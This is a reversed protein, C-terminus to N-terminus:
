IHITNNKNAILYKSIMLRSVTFATFFSTIIGISLTIAFGKIPGNGLYFLIIGAILTTFNSDIITLLSKKYAIDFAIINSKEIKLEERAREYIIVNTDIAMGVTLIIGAIGPLTLTSGFLSLVAILFIINLLLSINAFFGFLRYAYVMYAFVFLFGVIFSIIGYRISDEGLDAGVTREEIIKMPAPLAGARLLISLENAEAVTFSGSIQGSGTLIPERIVPSSLIENDLIIALPRGVNDKTANAFKKAGINDFKFSVISQNTQHDFGPQADILNEGSVILKKEVEVFSGDSKNKFKDFGTNEKSPSNTKLFKFNLQATKGLINKFTSPDSLGPLEVIIRNDGKQQITPEKTGLQDVRKRVIEVSQNVADKKIQKIYNESFQITFSNNEFKYFFNKDIKEGNNKILSGFIGENRNLRNIVEVFRDKSTLDKIEFYIKNNSITFNKYNLNKDQFIKKLESGKEDLKKNILPNVEIELLLYSGGQLDLGLNVKKNLFFNSKNFFNFNGLFIYIFIIIASFILGIKLRSFSLV